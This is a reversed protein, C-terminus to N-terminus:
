EKRLEMRLIPYDKGQDDKNTREYTSFGFKKYFKVAQTNEENVDVKITKLENIAFEMFKKGYGKDIYDPSLFLMEIKQEAVGLFGGVKSDRVLCFVELANFDISKVLEKIEIFDSPKLFKHTALVSKEWVELIQARYADTYKVVEFDQDQM